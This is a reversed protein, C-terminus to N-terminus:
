AVHERLLRLFEQPREIHPSHGCDEIVAERYNGYRELVARTQAIMPQAPTGDWGPVAGIAGLHALDFMSADSVIVDDAGRIWLIPPKPDVEHLDDLRFHIPALANLVGRTGPATGPWHDSPRADGPYNDEGTVTTLMSDLYRDENEVPHKVYAFRFVERMKERDGKGIAAVFEPNATGAGSGAGDPHTLRGDEGTTGGFGYPSVPNVLTLSRVLGPHDRLFQMVVGGGMSWGVLHVPEDVAERLDDAFDRLGRTADVPRPAASGFGRLDVAKAGPFEKVVDDWFAGSSVNGHVFVVSM